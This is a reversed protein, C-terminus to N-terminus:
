LGQAMRWAYGAFVGMFFAMVVFMILDEKRLKIM